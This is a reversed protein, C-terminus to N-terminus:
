CGSTDALLLDIPQWKGPFELALPSGLCSVTSQLPSLLPLGKLRLVKGLSAVTQNGSARSPFHLSVPLNSSCKVMSFNSELAIGPWQFLLLALRGLATAALPTFKLFDMHYNFDELRLYELASSRWVVPVRHLDFLAQKFFWLPGWVTM